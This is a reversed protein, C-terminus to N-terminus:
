DPSRTLLPSPSPVRSIELMPARPLKTIGNVMSKFTIPAPANYGEERASDPVFQHMSPTNPDWNDPATYIAKRWKPDVMHMTKRYQDSIADKARSVETGVLAIDRHEQLIAMYVSSNLGDNQFRQCIQLNKHWHPLIVLIDAVTFNIAPGNPMIYDSEPM